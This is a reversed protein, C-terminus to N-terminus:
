GILKNWTNPGVIGDLLSLGAREQFKQVAAKTASGFVGDILTGVRSQLYRVAIGRSDVKLLPKCLIANMASKTEIGAAGDVTIGAISQFRKVAEKTCNGNIGDEELANGKSDHVKLRNLTKQLELVKEDGIKKVPQSVPQQVKPSIIDTIASQVEARFMDVTKGFQAFYAVPDMHNTEHWRQSVEAHSMLNDPTIKVVNLVNVHLWAFLWVARKWVENFSAEDDYHCLEIGLYNSNAIPGAHWAKENWPIFQTISDRDVFAHASAGRYTSDFYTFENEDSAGPTATEHVVTGKAKLAIKSRNKSIFRQIIEYAM